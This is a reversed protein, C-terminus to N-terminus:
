TTAKEVSPFCVPMSVLASRWGTEGGSGTESMPQNRKKQQFAFVEVPKDTPSFLHFM